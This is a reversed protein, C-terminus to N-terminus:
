RHDVLSRPALMVYPVDAPSFESRLQPDGFPPAHDGVLLFITPRARAGAAIRSVSQHVARVLRFWSCLAASARLAPYSDCVHDDPLDPHAPVPLHSNLTVWYVFRPAAHPPALLGAGIFNAIAGDCIGPFAGRCRALGMKKLDSGFFASDFGLQRYWAARYFMEGAYGHIAFSEYGQARLEDPLCHRAMEPSAHLIGFGMTSRCLERAEGPVTLGTFPATGTTVRYDRRIASDAYPALLAQAVRGDTSLGWSEVVVLVVDPHAAGKGGLLPALQASASNMPGEGSKQSRAGTVYAHMERVGLVVLPSRVLRFSLFSVDQHWLPNQGDLIDVPLLIAATALLACAARLRRRPHPQVWALVCGVLAAAALVTSGAILRGHPLARLFRLSELLDRLSFQYTYCISYACDALSDLLLLALVIWRPLFMGAAGIVLIEVNVFGHPSANLLYISLLSVLSPLTLFCLVITGMRMKGASTALSAIRAWPLPMRTEPSREELPFLKHITSDSM